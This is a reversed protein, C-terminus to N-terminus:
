EKLVACFRFCLEWDGLTADSRDLSWRLLREFKNTGGERSTFYKTTVCYGGTTVGAFTAIPTWPGEPAVATELLLNLTGASTKNEWIVADVAAEKYDEANLWAEAPQVIPKSSTGSGCVGIPIQFPVAKGM